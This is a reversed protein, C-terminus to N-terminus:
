INHNDFSFADTLMFAYDLLQGHVSKVATNLIGVFLLSL